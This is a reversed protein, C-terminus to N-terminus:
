KPVSGDGLDVAKVEASKKLIQVVMWRKNRSIPRVEKILVKDGNRAERKEDHAMLKTTKTLYKGVHPHKVKRTIAVSVTKNMKDSVVVGMLTKRNDKESM